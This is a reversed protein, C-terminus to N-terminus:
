TGTKVINSFCKTFFKFKLAFEVFSSMYLSVTDTVRSLSVNDM